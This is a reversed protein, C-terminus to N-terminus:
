GLFRQLARRFLRPLCFDLWVMAKGSVTLIRQKRGRRLMTEIRRAVGDASMSWPNEAVEGRRELLQDFFESRTTNPAIWLVDIGDRSLELRLSDNLGRLAFKSACYESKKPVAVHGLVSGVNMIAPAMSERMLPVVARILEAPAFFNVEMIQRLCASSSERFLGVAGVGANNVLVDLGGWQETVHQVVQTRVKSDTLDGSVFSAEAGLESIERVLAVLRDERRATLILRAGAKGLRLALARGIGSSAGTIIVRCGSLKRRPM